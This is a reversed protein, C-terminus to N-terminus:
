LGPLDSAGPPPAYTGQRQAIDPRNIGTTAVKILIEGAKPVPVPRSTPVLVEPGGPKTIEVCTMTAPFASM